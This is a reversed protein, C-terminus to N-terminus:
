IDLLSIQPSKAYRYLRKKVYEMDEELAVARSNMTSCERISKESKKATEEKFKKTQDQLKEMDRRIGELKKGDVKRRDEIEAVTSEVKTWRASDDDLKSVVSNIRGEGQELRFICNAMTIMTEM